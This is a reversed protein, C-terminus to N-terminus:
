FGEIIEAALNFGPTGAGEVDLRLLLGAYAGTGRMLGRLHHTAYGPDITGFFMGQWSGAQNTLTSTGWLEASQDVHTDIAASVTRHGGARPDSMADTCTLEVGRSATIDGVKVNTGGDSTVCTETGTTVSGAEFVRSTLTSTNVVSVVHHVAELGEYGGSGFWISDFEMSAADSTSAIVFYGNWTGGDNVLEVTGWAFWAGGPHEDSRMAIEADGNLRPDTASNVCDFVQGRRQLVGAVTTTVGPTAETCTQRASSEGPALTRAPGPTARPTATPAGTAPPETVSPTPTPVGAGGGQNNGSFLGYGGVGAVVLILAAAAALWGRSPRSPVHTLTMGSM